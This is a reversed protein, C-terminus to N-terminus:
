YYRNREETRWFWSLIVELAILGGLKHDNTVCRGCFVYVCPKHPQAIIYESTSLVIGPMDCAPKQYIIAKMLTFDLVCTNELTGQHYLLM